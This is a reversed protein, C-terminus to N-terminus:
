FALHNLPKVDLSLEGFLYAKIRVTQGCVDFVASGLLCELFIELLAPLTLNVREGGEQHAVGAIALFQGDTAKLLEATEDVCEPEQGTVVEPWVGELMV